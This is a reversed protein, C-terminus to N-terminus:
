PRGETALTANYYAPDGTVERGLWDVDPLPTSTDPLEVEAVVLGELEGLFEDVEAVLAPDDGEAPLDVLYRRKRVAAGVTAEDLLRRAEDVGLGVEVETRAEVRGGRKVTLVADDDGRLRVRVESDEDVHLYGQVLTVPADRALERWTDARVLFKRETETAM